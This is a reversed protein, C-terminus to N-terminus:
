AASPALRPTDTAGAQLKADAAPTLEAVNQNTDTPLRAFLWNESNRKSM